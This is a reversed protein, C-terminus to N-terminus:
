RFLRTLEIQTDPPLSSARSLLLPGGYRAAVAAGSLADPFAQGTALFVPRANSDFFATSLSAATAYRDSGTIRDVNPGLARISAEVSDAVANTGGVVIVSAPSLRIIESRTAEPLNASRTLLIPASLSAAAPAAALGDPFAEGTVVVVSEVSPSFANLSVAAATAYRDSGAIRTIDAGSATAAQAEVSSEIVAEGGVIVIESPALRSLEAATTAPVDTRTVLLIPADHLAAVPGIALTDPFNEGTVLYVRDAGYPNFERSVAVATAYRDPGALRSPASGIIMAAENLVSSSVAASGGLIFAQDAIEPPVAALAAAAADLRGAGYLPDWGPAGLDVATDILLEKLGTVTLLPDVSLALAAAGSVHPAASSTGIQEVIRWGLSDFSEQFIGDPRGNGDLDGTNGGPAVLDLASGFNSYVALTDITTTAGVAFSAPNNAPSSVFGIGDNGAAVVVLVGRDTADDIASDVAIDSCTPWTSSCARGLSLNIIDAGHDVAWQIGNAVELSSGSGASLVKVPMISVDPAVGAAGVGNNTCQAITGTVHTGHGHDDLVSALTTEGTFANYPAVFSRCTLDSGGLAIGSDLVAVTVDTGTGHEWASEVGITRLHWQDPYAPDNPESAERYEFEPAVQMPIRGLRFREQLDGITVGPNIPMRSWMQTKGQSEPRVLVHGTSAGTFEIVTEPTTAAVSQAVPGLWVALAMFLLALPRANSIVLSRRWPIM